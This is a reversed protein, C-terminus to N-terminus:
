LPYHRELNGGLIAERQDQTLFDCRTKFLIMSQKYTVVEECSPMDSGWVLKEAGLESVLTRVVDEIEPTYPPFEDDFSMKHLMLEISWGPNQLLRLIQPPVSYRNAVTVDIRLNELGHTLVSPIEPHSKAWREFDEIESLYTEMQPRRKSAASWHIPVGLGGVLEWLPELSPDRVGIEFDCHFFGSTGFYLGSFGLDEIQRRVRGVQDATGGRWEDVQALALLRDPHLRICEALYDDLRGYVRDSQILARDVGAYDMQAIMYDPPCSNDWLSPPFLQYYYDERNHTFEVRGFRGIRFDVDPLASIGHGDRVLVPQAVPAGDRTRRIDTAGAFRIHHQTEALRAQMDGTDDGLPPFCHAHADFVATM